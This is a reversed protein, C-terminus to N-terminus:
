FTHFIITCPKVQTSNAVQAKEKEGKEETVIKTKQLGIENEQKQKETEHLGRKTNTTFYFHYLFSINFVSRLLSCKSTGASRKDFSPSLTHTNMLKSAVAAANNDNHITPMNM